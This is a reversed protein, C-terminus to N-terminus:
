MPQYVVYGDFIYRHYQQRSHAMRNTIAQAQPINLPFTYSSKPDSTVIIKNPLYREYGTNLYEDLTFCTIRGASQFMVRECTWYDSYIHVIGLSALHDIYDEQEASSAQTSPIEQFAKVTGVFFLLVIFLLVLRKAHVQFFTAVKSAQTSAANGGVMAGLWLPYIIAPTAIWVFIIYRSSLYPYLTSSPSLAFLVLSVAAAILLGLRAYSRVQAEQQEATRIISSKGPDDQLCSISFEGM